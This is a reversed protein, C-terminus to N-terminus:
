ALIDVFAKNKYNSGYWGNFLINSLINYLIILVYVISAIFLITKRIKSTKIDTLYLRNLSNRYTVYFYFLFVLRKVRADLYQNSFWINKKKLFEDSSYRVRRKFPTVYNFVRRAYQRRRPPRRRPRFVMCCIMGGVLFKGPPLNRHRADTGCVATPIGGDHASM